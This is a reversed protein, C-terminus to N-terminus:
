TTSGAPALLIIRDVTVGMLRVRGQSNTLRLRASRGWSNASQQERSEQFL